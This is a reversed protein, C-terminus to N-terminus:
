EHNNINHTNFKFVELHLHKGFTELQSLNFDTNLNNVLTQIETSGM